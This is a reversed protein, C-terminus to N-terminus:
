IAGVEILHAYEEDTKGLLGKYVEENFSGIPQGIWKIQGPTETLVPCVSPIHVKGFDPSDFEVLNPCHEYFLLSQVILVTM